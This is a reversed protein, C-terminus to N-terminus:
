RWYCRGATGKFWADVWTRVARLDDHTPKRALKARLPPLELRAEAMKRAVDTPLGPCDMALISGIAALRRQLVRKSACTRKIVTREQNQM